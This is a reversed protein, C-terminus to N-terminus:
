RDRDMRKLLEKEVRQLSEELQDILELTRKTRSQVSISDRIDAVIQKMKELM